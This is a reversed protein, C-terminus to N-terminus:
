ALQDSRENEPQDDRDDHDRDDDIQHVPKVPARRLLRREDTGAKGAFFHHDIGAGEHQREDVVDRRDVHVHQLHPHMAALVVGDDGAVPHPDVDVGVEVDADAGGGLRHRERGRREAPAGHLRLRQVLQQRALEDRRDARDGGFHRHLVHVLLAPDIEGLDLLGGGLRQGLVPEFQFQHRQGIEVLGVQLIEVGRVAEVGLAQGMQDLLDLAPALRAVVDLLIRHDLDARAIELRLLLRELDLALAFQRSQLLLAVDLHAAGHLAGFDGALARHAVGLGLLGLDVRALFDLFRPDAILAGDALRPDGGLAVDALALDLAALGDVLGLDGRALRHLLRPDGIVLQDLLGADGGVALDALALDLLQPRQLGGFDGRAFGGLAGPDRLFRGDASVPDGVLLPNRAEVDRLPTRDLLGIDGRPEGGFGRFDGAVARDDGIAEGRLFLPQRALDDAIAGDLLLGDRRLLQHLGGADDLLLPDARQGDGAVLRDVLGLDGRQMRHLRRPDGVLLFDRRM